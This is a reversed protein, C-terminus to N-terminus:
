SWIYYTIKGTFHASWLYICSSDKLLHYVNLPTTLTSHTSNSAKSRRNGKTRLETGSSTSGWIERCLWRSDVILRAVSCDFLGPPPLPQETELNRTSSLACRQWAFSGSLRLRHYSIRDSILIPVSSGVMHERERVVYGQQAAHYKLTKALCSGHHFSQILMRVIWCDRRWQTRQLKMNAYVEEAAAILMKASFCMFCSYNSACGKSDHVCVCKTIM